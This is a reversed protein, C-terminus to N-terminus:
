NEQKVIVFTCISVCFPPALDGLVVRDDNGLKNLVGFFDFHVGHGLVANHHCADDGTCKVQKVPVFTCLSVRRVRMGSCTSFAPTCEPSAVM